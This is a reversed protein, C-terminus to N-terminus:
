LVGELSICPIDEGVSVYQIDQWEEFSLREAQEAWRLGSGTWGTVIHDYWIGWPYQKPNYHTNGTLLGQRKAADYFEEIYERTDTRVIIEQRQFAAWFEDQTM